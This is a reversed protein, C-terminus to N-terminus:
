MKMELTVEQGTGETWKSVFIRRLLRNQLVRFRQEEM